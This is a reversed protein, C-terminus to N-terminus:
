YIYPLLRKTHKVYNRWKDQFEDEMIKEEDTIRWILVMVTLLVLVISMLSNYVFSIGTLFVIIGLYRPHRVLNYPPKLILEHDKQITVNVSFQKGLVFVAWSMMFYGFLILVLGFIRITVGSSIAMFGHKDAIPSTSVFLISVVQLYIVALKQRSVLKEGTRAGRGHNPVFIVVLLVSITMMISYLERQFNAFYEHIDSIGWSIIPIGVFLFTGLIFYSVNQIVKKM